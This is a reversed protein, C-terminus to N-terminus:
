RRHRRLMWTAALIALGLVASTTAMPVISAARSMGMWTGTVFAAFMASFGLLGAATGAQREFPRAAGAQVCPFNIGHAFFVVFGGVLVISWHPRGFWAWAAFIMGAVAAVHAGSLLTRAAGISKVMRRCLLTGVLYGSIGFAWIYGFAITSVGLVDILAFSAGSIFVFISAYSLAGPLAYAWFAPSALVVRHNSILGDIALARPDRQQNTEALHFWTVWLMTASTLAFLVFVARWGFWVQLYAGLVPGFLPVVSLLSSAVAMVRAGEELSCTDRVLARATVVTACCGIAQLLRAVTLTEVDGAFACLLSAAVYILLGGIAVPRRGFRDSLPGAVLQACGFGIVFITLTQQIRARSVDFYDVLHPLSALYVDTSMAQLALYSTILLLLILPTSPHEHTTSSM